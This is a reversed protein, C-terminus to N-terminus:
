QKIGERIRMPYCNLKKHAAVIANQMEVVSSIGQKLEFQSALFDFLTGRMQFLQMKQKPVVVTRLWLDRQPFGIQKQYDCAAFPGIGSWVPYLHNGQSAEAWLAM